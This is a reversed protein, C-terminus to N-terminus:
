SERGPLIRVLTSVEFLRQAVVHDKPVGDHVRVLIAYVLFAISSLIIMIDTM